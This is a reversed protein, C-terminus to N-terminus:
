RTPADERPPQRRALAFARLDERYFIPISGLRCRPCDSKRLFDPSIRLYEAAEDLRMFDRM